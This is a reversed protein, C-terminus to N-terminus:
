NFDRPECAARTFSSANPAVVRNADWRWAAWRQCRRCCGARRGQMHTRAQCLAVIIGAAQYGTLANWRQRIAANVAQHMGARRAARSSACRQRRCACAAQQQECRGGKRAGGPGAALRVGELWGERSEHLANSSAARLALILVHHSARNGAQPPCSRRVPSPPPAQSRQPSARRGMLGQLRRHAHVHQKFPCVLLAPASSLGARASDAAGGDVTRAAATRWRGGRGGARGGGNGGQSM